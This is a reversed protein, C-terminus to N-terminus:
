AETAGLSGTPELRARHVQEATGAPTATVATAALAVAIQILLRLM